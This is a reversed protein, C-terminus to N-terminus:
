MFQLILIQIKFINTQQATNAESTQRRQADTAIEKLYVEKAVKVHSDYEDLWKKNCITFGNEELGKEINIVIRSNVCGSGTGGKITQRAGNGFLAVKGASPLPLVGKNELLVACEGAIRRVTDNNKQELESVKDTKDAYHSDAM